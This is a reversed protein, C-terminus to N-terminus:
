GELAVLETAGALHDKSLQELQAADTALPIEGVKVLKEGVSLGENTRIVVGAISLVAGVFFANVGTTPTRNVSEALVLSLLTHTIRSREPGFRLIRTMANVVFEEIAKVYDPVVSGSGISDHLKIADIRSKDGFEFRAGYMPHWPLTHGDTTTGLNPSMGILLMDCDSRSLETGNIHNFWGEAISRPEHLQHPLNDVYSRLSDVLRFGNVIPGAFGVIMNPAVAHIKQVGFEKVEHLRGSEVYSIRTDGFLTGYDLSLAAIVWTM